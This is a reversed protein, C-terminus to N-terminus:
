LIKRGIFRLVAHKSDLCYGRPDKKFKRWLRTKRGASVIGAGGGTKVKSVTPRIGPSSTASSEVPKPLAIQRAAANPDRVKIDLNSFLRRVKEIEGYGILHEFAANLFAAYASLMEESYDLSEVVDRLQTVETLDITFGRNGYFAGGFCILPKAHSAVELGSQSNLTIAFRCGSILGPLSFDEVIHFRKRLDHPLRERFDKMADFTSVSAGKNKMREYPHVKMVVPDNNFELLEAIVKKYFRISNKWKNSSSFISFDNPVQALVLAYNRIKYSTFAPQAVNRNRQSYLKRWAESYPSSVRQNLADTFRKSRLFSSNPISSYRPELYFDHGTFFHEAVFGPIARKRAIALFAKVYILNGGFCIAAVPKIKSFLQDWYNLWFCVAARCARVEDPFSEGILQSFDHKSQNDSLSWDKHLAYAAFLEDELCENLDIGLYEVDKSEAVYRFEASFASYSYNGWAKKLEANHEDFHYEVNQGDLFDFLAPFNERKFNVKDSFIIM